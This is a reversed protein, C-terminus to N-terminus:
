LDLVMRTVFEDNVKVINLGHYTAAKVDTRIVHKNYDIHSGRVVSSLLRQDISINVEFQSFFMKESDKLFILEAIYNYLLENIGNGDVTLNFEKEPAVKDLDTMAHFCARACAIFLQELTRGYADFVFDASALDEVIVFKGPEDPM